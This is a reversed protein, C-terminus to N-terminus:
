ELRWDWDSNSALRMKFENGTILRGRDFDILFENEILIHSLVMRGFPADSFECTFYSAYPIRKLIAVKESEDYHEAMSDDHALWCHGMKSSVLIRGDSLKETQLSRPIRILLCELSISRDTIIVVTEM